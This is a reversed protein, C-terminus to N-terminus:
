SSVGQCGDIYVCRCVFYHFLGGGMSLNSQIENPREEILSSMVLTSLFVASDHPIFEM